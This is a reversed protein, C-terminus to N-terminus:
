WSIVVCIGEMKKEASAWGTSKVGWTVKVASVTGESREGSEDSGAM